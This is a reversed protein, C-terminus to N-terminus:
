SEPRICSKPRMGSELRFIHGRDCIGVGTLTVVESTEGSEPQV